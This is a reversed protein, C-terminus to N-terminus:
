TVSATALCRAPAMRPDATLMAEVWEPCINRGFATVLLNDKSGTM